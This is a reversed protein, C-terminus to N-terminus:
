ASYSIIPMASFAFLPSFFQIQDPVGLRDVFRDLPIAYQADSSLGNEDGAHHPSFGAVDQDGRLSFLIGAPFQDCQPFRGRFSDRRVAWIVADAAAAREQM